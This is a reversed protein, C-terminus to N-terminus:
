KLKKTLTLNVNPLRGMIATYVEKLNGLEESFRSEMKDHYKRLSDELIKRNDNQIKTIEQQKERELKIKENELEQKLKEENIKVMHKIEEAEIRKKMKMDELEEKLKKKADRLTTIEGKLEKIDERGILFSFLGM